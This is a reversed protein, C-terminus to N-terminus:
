NALDQALDQATIKEVWHGAIKEHVALTKGDEALFALDGNKGYEDDLATDDKPYLFAPLSSPTIAKTTDERSLTEALTALEVIGAKTTSAVAAAAVAMNLAVRVSTVGVGAASIAVGVLAGSTATLTVESNVADWYLDSGVTINDGSKAPFRCLGTIYITGTGGVPINVNAIGCIDGIFVVDGASIVTAGANTYSLYKGQSIFRVTRAM